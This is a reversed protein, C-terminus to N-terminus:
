EEDVCDALLPEDDDLVADADSDRYLELACEVNIEFAQLLAPNSRADIRITNDPSLQAAPLDVGQMWDSVDFLLLLGEGEATLDFDGGVGDLELEDQEPHALTFPVGDAREGRVVISHDALEPPAGAPLEATEKELPVILGCYTNAELEMTIRTDPEALDAVVLSPSNETNIESLNECEGAPRFDFVGFSVWAQQVVAGGAGESVAVAGPNTSHVQLAIETSVVPNGTETGGACGFFALAFLGVALYPRM